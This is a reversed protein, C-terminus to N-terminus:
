QGSLRKLNATAAVNNPDHDLVSRYVSKALANDGKQEYALGLLVEIQANNPLAALARKYTAIGDDINRLNYTQVNALNIYASVLQNNLGIAKNYNDVAVAYHGLDREVNGLNNRLLADQSDVDIARQYQTKSEEYQGVAYLAIAYDRIAAADKANGAKSKLEPIKKRYSEAVPNALPKDLKGNHPLLKVIVAALLAGVLAMAVITFMVRQWSALRRWGQRLPFM